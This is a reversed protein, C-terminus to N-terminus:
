GQRPAGRGASAPVCRLNLVAARSLQVLAAPTRLFSDSAARGERFECKSTALTLGSDGEPQLPFTGPLSSLFGLLSRPPPWGQVQSRELGIRISWKSGYQLGGGCVWEAALEAARAM